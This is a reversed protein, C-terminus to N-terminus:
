RSVTLTQTRFDVARACRGREREHACSKAIRVSRRGLSAIRDSAASAYSQMVGIRM